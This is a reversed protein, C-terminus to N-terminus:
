SLSKKQAKWWREPIESNIASEYDERTCPLLTFNHTKGKFQMGYPVEIWWKQTHVSHYFILEVDELPVIYKLLEETNVIPYENTRYQFGEIFYWIIQSILGSERETGFHNFIGFSSVRDSIGAYRSLVCAEKGNFGNPSFVDFNGSSSSQVSTMDFSVIDADRMIPESIKIDSSIEGLRYVDFYMSELLEIEEQSSFYTQYGLVSFNFLNSPEQMIMQTLYANASFETERNLDFKSDVSVCNVTQGLNDYSRYMAYTLDQSGGIVVPIIKQHLLYSVANKLVYHTDNQSEGMPIDGLDAIKFNWNGPFLSYFSKRINHITIKSNQDFGRSDLVGILAIKIEALDPFHNETHLIISKGIANFSLHETFDIIEQEVPRFFDFVM